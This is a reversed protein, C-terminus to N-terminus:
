CGRNTYSLTYSLVHLVIFIHSAAYAQLRVVGLVATLMWGAGGANQHLYRSERVRGADTHMAWFLCAWDLDPMQTGFSLSFSSEPENGTGRIRPSETGPSLIKM